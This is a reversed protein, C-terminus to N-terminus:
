PPLEKVMEDEAAFIVLTSIVKPESSPLLSIVAEVPVNVEGVQVPDADETVKVM